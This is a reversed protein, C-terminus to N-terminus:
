RRVVRPLLLQQSLKRARLLQPERLLVLGNRYTADTEAGEFAAGLYEERIVEQRIM